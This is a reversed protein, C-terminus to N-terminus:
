TLFSLQHGPYPTRKLLSLESFRSRSKGKLYKEIAYLTAKFSVSDPGSELLSVINWSNDNKIMSRYPTLIGGPAVM